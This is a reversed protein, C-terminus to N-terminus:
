NQFSIIAFDESHSETKTPLANCSKQVWVETQGHAVNFCDKEAVSGTLINSLPDDSLCCVQSSDERM